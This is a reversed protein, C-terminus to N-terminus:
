EQFAVGYKIGGFQYKRLAVITFEESMSEERGVQNIREVHNIRDARKIWSLIFKPKRGLSYILITRSSIM